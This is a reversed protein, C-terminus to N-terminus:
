EVVINGFSSRVLYVLEAETLKEWKVGPVRRKMCDVLGQKIKRPDKAELTDKRM